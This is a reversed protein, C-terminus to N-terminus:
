TFGFPLAIIIILKHKCTAGCCDRCIFGIKLTHLMVIESFMFSFWTKYRTGTKRMSLIFGYWSATVNYQVKKM